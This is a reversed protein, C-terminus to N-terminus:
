RYLPFGWLIGTTAARANHDSRVFSSDICNKSVYSSSSSVTYSSGLQLCRAQVYGTCDPDYYNGFQWQVSTWVGFQSSNPYNIPDLHGIWTCSDHTHTEEIAGATAPAVVSSLIASSGVALAALSTGTAKKLASNV